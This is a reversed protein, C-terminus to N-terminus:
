GKPKYQNARINQAALSVTEEIRKQRTEPKKANSVWELIGRRTSPPFNSFNTAAAPTNKLLAEMDHPISLTEVDNLAEWTGTQRALEVMKLGAPAMRGENHLRTVKRKNVGSWKSKPNRKSFFQFYSKEDRKNPKSDIWGFCLAEDVAEPYYVSPTGSEKKYIILWVSKETEHNVELWERWAQQSAAHLTAIGDERANGM